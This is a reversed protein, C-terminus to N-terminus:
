PAGQVTTQHEHRELLQARNYGEVFTAIVQRARYISMSIQVCGPLRRPSLMGVAVPAGAAPGPGRM